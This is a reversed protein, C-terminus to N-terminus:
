SDVEWSYRAVHAITGGRKRVKIMKRKIQYGETKLDCIRSALRGIGLYKRAQADTISGHTNIYNIVMENQTMRKFRRKDTQWGGVKRPESHNASVEKTNIQIQIKSQKTIIMQLTILKESGRFM